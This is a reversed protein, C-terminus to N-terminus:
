SPEEPPPSPSIASDRPGTSHTQMQAQGTPFTSLVARAGYPHLSSVEAMHQRGGQTCSGSTVKWTVVARLLVFNMSKAAKRKAKSLIASEM